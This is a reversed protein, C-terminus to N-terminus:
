YGNHGQGGRVCWVYRTIWKESASVGGNHFGVDQAWDVRQVHTTISFYVNGGVNIFPHGVPLSPNYNPDVLSTLEEITPLRWGKRGGLYKDYCNCVATNWHMQTISPAREWVLGTEKDLVVDDTEDEPTGPDYIAFRPNDAHDEWEVSMDTRDQTIGWIPESQLKGAWPLKDEKSLTPLVFFFVLALALTVLFPTSLSRRSQFTM